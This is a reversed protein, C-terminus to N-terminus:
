YVQPTTKSFSGFIWKKLYSMKEEEEEKKEVERRRKEEGEEKENEKNRRRTRRGGRRGPKMLKGERRSPKLELSVAVCCSVPLYPGPMQTQRGVEPIVLM